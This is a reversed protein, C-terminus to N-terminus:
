DLLVYNGKASIYQCIIVMLIVLLSLTLSFSELGDYACNHITAMAVTAYVHLNELQITHTITCKTVADYHISISIIM